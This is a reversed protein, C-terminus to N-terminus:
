NTDSNSISCYTTIIRGEARHLIRSVVSKNVQLAEALETLTCGRPSDYYGHVIALEIVDQQRETLLSSAEDTASIEMIRYEIEAGELEDRFASLQEQSAILKGVLWGNELHLPFSPVVGSEAMAGHPEPTPTSVEFLMEQTDSHRMEFEEIPPITRLTETLIEVDVASTKLLLRLNEDNPWAGLIKFLAEPHTNSLAVLGENSKIKLIAQPMTDGKEAVINLYPGDELELRIPKPPTM